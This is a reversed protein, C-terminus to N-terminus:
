SEVEWDSPEGDEHARRQAGCECTEVYHHGGDALVLRQDVARHAHDALATELSIHTACGECLAIGNDDTTTPRADCDLCDLCGCKEPSM